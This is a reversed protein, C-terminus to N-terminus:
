LGNFRADLCGFDGQSVAVATLLPLMSCCWPLTCCAFTWCALHGVWFPTAEPSPCPLWWSLVAHCPLVAFQPPRLTCM